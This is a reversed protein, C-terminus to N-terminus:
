WWVSVQFFAGGDDVHAELVKSIDVMDDWWEPLAEGADEEYEKVYRTLDHVDDDNIYWDSPYDEATISQLEQALAWGNWSGIVVNTSAIDESKFLPEREENVSVNVFNSDIPVRRFVLISCSM